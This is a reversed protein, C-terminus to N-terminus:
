HTRLTETQRTSKVWWAVRSSNRGSPSSSRWHSPLPHTVARSRSTSESRHQLHCPLSVVTQHRHAFSVSSNGLLVAAGRGLQPQDGSSGYKQAGHGGSPLRLTNIFKFVFLIDLKPLMPKVSLPLANYPVGDPLRRLRGMQCVESGRRFGEPWEDPGGKRELDGGRARGREQGRGERTRERRKGGERKQGGGREKRALVPQRKAIRHCMM